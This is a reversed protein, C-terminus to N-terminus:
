GQTLLPMCVGAPPRLSQTPLFNNLKHRPLKLSSLAKEKWTNHQLCHPVPVETLSSKYSTCHAASSSRYAILETVEQGTEKLEQCSIPATRSRFEVEAGTCPVYRSIQLWERGWMAPPAEMRTLDKQSTQPTARKCLPLQYQSINSQSSRGVDRKM